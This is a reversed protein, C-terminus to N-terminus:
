EYDRNSIYEGYADIVDAMFSQMPTGTNDKNSFDEDKIDLHSLVNNYEIEKKSRNHSIFKIDFKTEQYLKREKLNKTNERRRGEETRKDTEEKKAKDIKYWNDNIKFFLDAEVSLINLPKNIEIREGKDTYVNTINSMVRANKIICHEAFQYLYGSRFNLFSYEMRYKDDVLITDITIYDVDGPRNSKYLITVHQNNEDVCSRVRKYERTYGQPFTCHVVETEISVEKQMLFFEQYSQMLEKISFSM